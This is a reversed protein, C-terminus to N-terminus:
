FMLPSAVHVLYTAGITAKQMSEDNLLDAEVLELKSYLDGYAKKLPAM